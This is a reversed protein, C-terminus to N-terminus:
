KSIILKRDTDTTDEQLLKLRVNDEFDFYTLLEEREQLEKVQMKMEEIREKQQLMEVQKELETRREIMWEEFLAEQQSIDEAEHLKVGKSALDLVTQGLDAGSVVRGRGQLIEQLKSFEAVLEEKEERTPLLNRMEHEVRRLAIEVEPENADRAEVKSLSQSFYELAVDTITGDASESIEKLAAVGRPFKQYLGCGIVRISNRVQLYSFSIKLFYM